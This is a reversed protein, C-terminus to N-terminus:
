VRHYAVALAQPIHREFRYLKYDCNEQASQKNSWFEWHFKHYAMSTVCHRCSGQLREEPESILRRASCTNSIRQFPFFIRANRQCETHVDPINESLM